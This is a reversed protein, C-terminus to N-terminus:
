TRVESIDLGPLDLPVTRLDDLALRLYVCTSEASRHGLVDGITKLSAGQRLLHVALSHRMCHPGQFPIPLGSRRSWAQFAETVATPKLVGSPARHRVFVERYPLIPRGRRLYNILANGVAATLPLLLPSATKRQPVYLRDARWEIHEQKLGAVESTRLGYTAILLLMAYDRLGITTSRDVAQLLACVIEWSLARPLRENRYVRPTDIQIDLGTPVEGEFALFRLLSRLQGVVHQLSERSIGSGINSIFEETDKATLKSLCLVSGQTALHCFFQSATSLHQRITPVALGRVQLLYAGYDAVKKEIPSPPDPAPLIGQGDFYRELLRVTSAADTDEQSRGAPPACARLDARTINTINCCRTQLKRDIRRTARIHRRVPTDPYGQEALFQAFGDLISGLMPLSSYRRHVRPFLEQLM